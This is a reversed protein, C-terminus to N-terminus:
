KRKWAAFALTAFAAAAVLQMGGDAAPQPSPPPASGSLAASIQGDLRDLEGDQKADLISDAHLKWKTAIRRVKTLTRLEASSLDEPRASTVDRSLRPSIRHFHVQEYEAGGRPVLKSKDAMSIMARAGALLSRAPMKLPICGLHCCYRSLKGAEVPDVLPIGDFEPDPLALPIETCGLIIAEAGMAKLTAAYRRFNQVAQLTIPSVAKIGWEQNYITDHLEPQMESPVELVEYGQPELLDRYVRSERTGTTSM